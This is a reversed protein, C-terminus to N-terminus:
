IKSAEEMLYNVFSEFLEDYIAANEENPTIEEVVEFFEKPTDEVNKIENLANAAMIVGGFAAAYDRVRTMKLPRQLIDSVIKLWNKSASGGGEVYIEKVSLELGNLVELFFRAAFGASELLSRYLHARSHHLSLNRWNALGFSALPVFIPNDKSPLIEGAEEDLLTLPEIRLSDANEKVSQAYNEIFWELTQGVGPITAEILWRNPLAHPLCFIKFNNDFFDLIRNNVPIDIFLGTGLTLKAKGNGFLGLGLSAAQQDGSGLIVPIQPKLGLENAAERTLEGVISISEKVEPVKDLDIDLTDYIERDYARKEEDYFLYVAQSPSSSAEGVMFKTLYSDPLVFKYTKEYIDEQNQKFWLVKQLAIRRRIKEFIEQPVDPTRNDMWTLANFLAEGSENIPVVTGRQTVLTVADIESRDLEARALSERIGEKIKLIWLEPNQEHLGKAPSVSEYKSVSKGLLGKEIDIIYTKVTSTGLDIALYNPM